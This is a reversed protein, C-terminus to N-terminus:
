KESKLILASIDGSCVSLDNASIITELKRWIIQINYVTHVNKKELVIEVSSTLFIRPYALLTPPLTPPTSALPFPSSDKKKKNTLKM